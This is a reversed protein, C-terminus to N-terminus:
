WRYEFRIGVRFEDDYKVSHPYKIFTGKIATVVEKIQLVDRKYDGQYYQGKTGYGAELGLTNDDLFAFIPSKNARIQTRSKGTSMDLFTAATGGYKLKPVDVAQIIREQPQAPPLGLKEVVKVTDRYAIIQKPKVAVQPENKVAKAPPATIVQGPKIDPKHLFLWACYAAILLGFVGYVRWRWKPTQSLKKSLREWM